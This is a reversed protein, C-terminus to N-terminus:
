PICIQRLLRNLTKQGIGYVCLLDQPYHFPGNQTREEIIRQALAPGIGPLTDLEELSATNVDVPGQPMVISMREDQRARARPAVRWTRPASPMHLHAAILGLALLVAALAIVRRKM